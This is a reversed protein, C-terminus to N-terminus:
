EVDRHKHLHSILLYCPETSIFPVIDNAACINFSLHGIFDFHLYDFIEFILNEDVNKGEFIRAIDKAEQKKDM